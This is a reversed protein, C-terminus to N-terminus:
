FASETDPSENRIIQFISSDIKSLFIHWKEKFLLNEMLEMLM